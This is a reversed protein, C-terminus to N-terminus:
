GSLSIHCPRRLGLPLRREIPRTTSSTLLVASLLVQWSVDAFIKPDKKMMVVAETSPTSYLQENIWRVDTGKLSMLTLFKM